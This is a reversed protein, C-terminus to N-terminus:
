SPEACKSSSETLWYIPCYISYVWFDMYINYFWTNFENFHDSKGFCMYQVLAFRKLKTKFFYINIQWIEESNNNLINEPQSM